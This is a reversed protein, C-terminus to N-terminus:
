LYHRAYQWKFSVTGTIATCTVTIPNIWNGKTDSVELRMLEPQTSPWFIGSYADASNKKVSGTLLDITLLDNAALGGNWEFYYGNRANAVKLNTLSAGGGPQVTIKGRRIAATGPSTDINFAKSTTTLNQSNILQGWITGAAAGWKSGGAWAWGIDVQALWFPYDIRMTHVIEQISAKGPGKEYTLGTTKAWTQRYTTGDDMKAMLIGRGALKRKLDDIQADATQTLSPTVLFRKSVTIPKVVAEDGDPDYGGNKLEILADRIQTPISDETNQQPYVYGGFSYLRM